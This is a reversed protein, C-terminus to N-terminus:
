HKKTICDALQIWYCWILAMHKRTVSLKMLLVQLIQGQSKQLLQFELEGWTKLQEVAAARFTDAAGFVVSKGAAVQMAGIKGVSTTKGVGNVGVMIVVAPQNQLQLERSRNSTLAARLQNAVEQMLDSKSVASKRLASIIQKSWHSGIDALLLMDEVDQWDQDSIDSKSLISKLSSGWGKIKV